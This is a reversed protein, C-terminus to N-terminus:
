FIFTAPTGTHKHELSSKAQKAAGTSVHYVQRTVESIATVQGEVSM